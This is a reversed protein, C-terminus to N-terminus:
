KGVAFANRRLSQLAGGFGKVVATRVALANPRRGVLADPETMCPQADNVEGGAILRDRVLVLPNVDDDVALEIVEFALSAFQLPASMQKSRTRVALNRQMQVLFEAGM